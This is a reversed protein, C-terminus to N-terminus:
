QGSWALTYEAPTTTVPAFPSVAILADDADRPIAIQWNSTDAGSAGADHLWRTVKATDDENWMAQVWARQPLRNDTRIWGAATWDGTDTEFDDAYGIAPIRVNDLAMGPQNVADDTILEFRVLVNKGAYADLSVSEAVWGGTEGTYGAGYSKVNPDDTTTRATSLIDWTAGEDDSVMVYGYDWYEETHVWLNYELTASAADTLDFARTLTTDSMDARNSYWFHGGDPPADPIVRTEAPLTFTIDLTMGDPARYYDTAYQHADADISFARVSTRESAARYNFARLEPYGYRPDASANIGNAVVWDAFLAEVSTDPDIDRLVAAVASLGRPQDDASLARMADIGYRQYFYVMFLLSGGYNAARAASDEAWNNLQTDPLVLFSIAEWPDRRYLYFETFVSLGENLWTEDNTQLNFRIMHQFEHAVTSEVEATDARDGIADLNFLFMERENSIPVAEVPYANDSTFYAATTAGLGYAFLGHVRLDGDVGPSAESGWLARVNPYIEADFAAALRRVSGADLRAGVEVWLAIHEGLAVLEAEVEFARQADSDVVSFASRDGVAYPAPTTPPPAIETVGRLRRALEVQDRPPIPTDQLAAVTPYPVADDNPVNDTTQAAVPLVILASLLLAALGRRIRLIPIDTM